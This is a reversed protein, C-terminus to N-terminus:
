LFIEWKEPIYTYFMYKESINEGKDQMIIFYCTVSVQRYYEVSFMRKLEYYSKKGTDSMTFSPCKMNEAVPRGFGASHIAIVDKNDCHLMM